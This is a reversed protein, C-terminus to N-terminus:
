RSFESLRALLANTFAASKANGGSYDAKLQM